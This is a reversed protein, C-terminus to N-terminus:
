GFTSRCAAFAPGRRRAPRRHVAISERRVSTSGQGSPECCPLTAQDALGAGGAACDDKRRVDQGFDLLDAVANDDQACPRRTCSWTITSMRRRCRIRALSVAGHGGSGSCKAWSSVTTARDPRGPSSRHVPRARAAAQTPQGRQWQGFHMDFRDAQRGDILLIMRRLHGCSERASQWLRPRHWTTAPPKPRKHNKKGQSFIQADLM